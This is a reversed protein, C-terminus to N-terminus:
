RKIIIMGYEGMKTLNLLQLALNVNIRTLVLKIFSSLSERRKRRKTIMMGIYMIPTMTWSTLGMKTLM